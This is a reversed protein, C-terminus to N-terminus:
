GLQAHVEAARACIAADFGHQALLALGNTERLVGPRLLPMGEEHALYLAQLQPALLRALATNH